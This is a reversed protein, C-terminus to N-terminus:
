LIRFLIFGITNIGFNAFMHLMLSPYISQSRENLFNLVLAGTFLGALVLALIGPSFWGPMMAVHYGSFALSSFFYSLRRSAATKLAFFAFGRFFIEELLSNAFSIYLAVRVFNNETVGAKATLSATIGSFDLVNRLAFYAAVIVSYTCIGLLLAWLLGKPKPRFLPAPSAERDFRAYLFPCGLFLAAKILSKVSYAPHIIGDVIGMIGCCVAVILLIIVTRKKKNM